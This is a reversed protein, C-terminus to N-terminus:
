FLRYSGIVSLSQGKPPEALWGQLREQLERYEPLDPIANTAGEDLQVLAVFTEGDPLVWWSYRIGEPKAAEIAAFMKHAATRVDAVHEAKIRAQAMQVNM